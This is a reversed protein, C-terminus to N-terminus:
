PLDAKISCAITGSPEFLRTLTPSVAYTMTPAVVATLVLTRISSGVAGQEGAEAVLPGFIALTLTLGAIALCHTKMMPRIM